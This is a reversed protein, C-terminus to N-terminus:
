IVTIHNSVQLYDKSLPRKRDYLYFTYNRSFKIKLRRMQEVSLEYIGISNM